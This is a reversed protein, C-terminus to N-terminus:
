PADRPFCCAAVGVAVLLLSVTIFTLPDTPYCRVPSKVRGSGAYPEWSGSSSVLWARRLGEGLVLAFFRAPRPAVAVRIGIEHTRLRSRTSSLATSGSPAMLLAVAAFGILLSTQFRRETLFRRTQSGIYESWLGVAHKEVRRVAAQFRGLWQGRILPPRECSWFARRPPNQPLPQFMQPIPEMELGQRRLTAWVGAVIFWVGAADDPGFKFRKGVPDAGPWLQRTMAENVIAVPPSQPWGGRFLLAGRILPTGLAKFLGASLEDSRLRLRQSVPRTDGEATVVQDGGGGV